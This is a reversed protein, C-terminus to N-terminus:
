CNKLEHILPTNKRSGRWFFKLTYFVISVKGKSLIDFYPNNTYLLKFICVSEIIQGNWSVAYVAKINLASPTAPAPWSIEFDPVKKVFYTGWMRIKLFSKM